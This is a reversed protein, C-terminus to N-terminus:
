SKRQKHYENVADQWEKIRAKPMKDINMETVILGTKEWTYIFAPDVGAGRM